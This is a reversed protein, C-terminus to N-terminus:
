NGALEQCKGRHLAKYVENRVKNAEEDTLSRDMRRIVLQLLINKQGPMMGMRKRASDPLATYSTESKVIMSEICDVAGPVQERVSDGLLEDSMSESVCLSLDRLIAPMKSVPLYAKLDTMQSSVRADKSRLLRIDAIDKRVMLLRDLGLGMALGSHHRLNAQDLIARAAIGCEGVEIWRDHWLADIQVGQETYPHPSDILRWKTEPLAMQMVITAMQELDCSTMDKGRYGNRHDKDVIRWLDLQHPEACHPRDISDRRYVLGPLILLLDSPPDVSLGELLDPIASSTQTRLILQDTIYRTYRSDRAAGDTPYGLRDYNNQLPVVPSTRVILRKCQWKDALGRHIDNVLSQMAHRGHSPDTLDQLSLVQSLSETSLLNPM